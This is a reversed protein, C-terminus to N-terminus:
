AVEKPAYGQFTRAYDLMWDKTAGKFHVVWSDHRTLHAKPVAGYRKSSLFQVKAGSREGILEEQPVPAAAQSIAEQDAGWHTGCIRLAERFFMLARAVGTKRVYMVGNNIPSVENSRYTLGVDYVAGEFVNGLHRLILCDVDVFCIHDEVPQQLRHVVGAIMAQMLEAPLKTIMCDFGAMPADTVVKHAHGTQLASFRQAAILDVYDDRWAPHNPRPTWVTCVEIM